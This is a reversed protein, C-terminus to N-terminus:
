GTHPDSVMAHLAGIASTPPWANRAVPGVFRLMRRATDFSWAFPVAPQIAPDVPYLGLKVVCIDAHMSEVFSLGDEETVCCYWLSWDEMLSRAVGQPILPFLKPCRVLVRAGDLYSVVSMCNWSHMRDFWPLIAEFRDDAPFWERHWQCLEPSDLLYMWKNIESSFNTVDFCMELQQEVTACANPFSVELQQLLELARHNRDNLPATHDLKLKHYDQEFRVNMSDHNVQPQSIMYSCSMDLRDLIPVEGVYSVGCLM